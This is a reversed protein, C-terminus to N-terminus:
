QGVVTWSTGNWRVRRHLAGGGGIISSGISCPITPATNPALPNSCNAALADIILHEEGEAITSPAFVGGGGGVHPLDSFIIALDAESAGTSNNIVWGARHGAASPAIGHKIIINNFSVRDGSGKSLDLDPNASNVGCSINDFSANSVNGFVMCGDSLPSVIGNVSAPNPSPSAGTGTRTVTTGAWTCGATMTVNFGVPSFSEAQCPFVGFRGSSFRLQYTITGGVASTWTASNAQIGLGRASTVLVNSVTMASAANIVLGLNDAETQLSNITVGAAPDNPPYTQMSQSAVVQPAGNVTYTGVGGVTGGSVATVVTPNNCTICTTPNITTGIVIGCPTQPGCQSYLRSGAVYNTVTLTNGAVGPTGNDIRGIFVDPMGVGIRMGVNSSEVASNYLGFGGGRVLYGTDFTAMRTNYVAIQGAAIGISGPQGSVGSSALQCNNISGVFWDYMVELAIMGQFYCDNIYANAAAFEFRVAGSAVDKSENRVGLHEIRQLSLNGDDPKDVCFGIQNCIILSTAGSGQRTVGGGVLSVPVSSSCFTLSAPSGGGVLGLRYQGVPLFVVGGVACADNIAAQIAARDDTRGNGTANYPPQMVNFQQNLETNLKNRVSLGSEGNIISTNAAWASPACLLALVLLARISNLARM